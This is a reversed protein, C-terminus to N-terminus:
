PISILAVGICIVLTGVWRTASVQEGLFYKAGIVSIVYGLATVPLAFSLDSRSLLAMFSFFGVAMCLIGLGLKWNTICDKCVRLIERVRFSNLEGIQKMGATLSINGVADSLVLLIVILWTVIM